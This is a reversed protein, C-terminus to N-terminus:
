EQAGLIHYLMLTQRLWCKVPYKSLDLGAEILSDCVWTLHNARDGCLGNSLGGCLHGKVSEMECSHRCLVYCESDGSEFFDDVHGLVDLGGTHLDIQLLFVSVILFLSGLKSPLDLIGCQAM